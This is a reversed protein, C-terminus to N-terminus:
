SIFKSFLPRIKSILLTREDKSCGIFLASIIVSIVAVASIIIFSYVNNDLTRAFSYPLITAVLSVGIINFYVSKIYKRVPLDIMGHLMYLRAALCIQSIVIAIVVVIEPIAGLMLAIYSLPLNLMQCGGVIIQYNRIKGTALMATVLPHSISESMTFILILRVFLVTHEPVEKLWLSLLFSTNLLIPLSLLFLMYFSLRAGQFILSFMYEHNGNAYNKTIQPNLAMMFNQVFGCVATNVQMAVGRAANVAPGAFLNIIINGGHDRLVASSAGIFNWGAFGFMQKLLDKDYLFSFKCEEFHKKCYWTYCSRITISILMMLLAYFVLKDIPSHAIFFAVFLKGGAEIISIYAFASMKEHAIIAANYPVSLLNICFTVISFQFVWNAADMRESPINMKCNLFWLGITEAVLIIIGGLILQITVSSSFIRKLKQTDGKGLEFTIFRSIAASLSGSLVSFMTIVGGVVNYIGFDTEGLASLIVRSTYLSVAMILLMRVYLLMTNKAIRKNNSISDNSM